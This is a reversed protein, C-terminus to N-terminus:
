SSINKKELLLRCVRHGRSQLESTHEESRRHFFCARCGLTRRQDATFGHDTEAGRVLAASGTHVAGGQTIFLNCQNAFLQVPLVLGEMYGVLDVGTPVGFFLTGSGFRVPVLAEGSILLGIGLQGLFKLTPDDLTIQGFVEGSLRIGKNM